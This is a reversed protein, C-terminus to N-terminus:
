KANWKIFELTLTLACHWPKSCFYMETVNHLCSTNSSTSTHCVVNLPSFSDRQMLCGIMQQQVHQFCQHPSSATSHRLLFVCWHFPKQRCKLIIWLTLNHTINEFQLILSCHSSFYNQWQSTALKVSESSEPWFFHTLSDIVVWRVNAVM